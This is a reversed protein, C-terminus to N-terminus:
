ETIAKNITANISVTYPYGTEDSESLSLSEFKVDSFITSNQFSEKLESAAEVSKCRATLVTPTGFTKPDLMLSDFVVGSPILKSFKLIIDTYVIEQDLIQKATALHSRFRAADAEIQSYESVKAKNDSISQEASAKATTLYFYLIGIALLTFLLAGVMLINYRVLLLNTRGAQLDKKNQEPLLNIM